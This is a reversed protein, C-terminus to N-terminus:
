KIEKGNKEEYKTCIIALFMLIAFVSFTILGEMLGYEIIVLITIVLYLITTAIIGTKKM